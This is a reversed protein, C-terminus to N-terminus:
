VDDLLRWLFASVTPALLVPPRLPNFVYTGRRVEADSPLFWVSQDDERLAFSNGGGDSGFVVIPVCRGDVALRVPVGRRRLDDLRDSQAIFYGNHVDPLSLGDCAQYVAALPLPVNGASSAAPRLEQVDIPYGFDMRMLDDLARELEDRWARLDTTSSIMSTVLSSRDQRM